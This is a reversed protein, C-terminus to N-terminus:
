EAAPANKIKELIAVREPNKMAQWSTLCHECCFAIRTGLFVVSPNEDNMIPDDALPCMDNAFTASLSEQVFADRKSEDWAMFQEQCGPCCTGIANGKYMFVPVDLVVPEKGIPCLANIPGAPAFKAIFDTQKGAGLKEWKAVCMKCCVGVSWGQTEVMIADEDLAEGSIPCVDNHLATVSATAAAPTANSTAAPESAGLLSGFTLALLLATLYRM